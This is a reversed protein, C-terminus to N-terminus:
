EPRSTSLLKRVIQRLQDQSRIPRGQLLALLVEEEKKPLGCTRACMLARYVTRCLGHKCHSLARAGFAFSWADSITELDVEQLPLAKLLEKVADGDLDSLPGCLLDFIQLVLRRQLRTVLKEAADSLPILVSVSHQGSSPDCNHSVFVIFAHRLWLKMLWSTAGFHAAVADVNKEMKLHVLSQELLREGLGYGRLEPHLCWRMMRVFRLQSAELIGADRSLIQASLNQPVQRRGLWLEEAKAADEVPEEIGSITLGVHQDASKLSLWIIGKADLFTELDSPKTKYHGIRLLGYLKKLEEEQLKEREVREVQAEQAVTERNQSRLTAPAADLLMASRALAKPCLQFLFWFGFGSMVRHICMYSADGRGYVRSAGFTRQRQVIFIM